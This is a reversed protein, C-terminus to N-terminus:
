DGDIDEYNQNYEENEWKDFEDEYGQNLKIFNHIMFCSKVIRVQKDMPYNIPLVAIVINVLDVIM